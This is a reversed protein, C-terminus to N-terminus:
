DSPYVVTDTTGLERSVQVTAADIMNPQAEIILTGATSGGEGVTVLDGVLLTTRSNAELMGEAMEGPTDGMQFDIVYDAAAGRNVIYLRQNFKANTTLYPLGITTGDRKISGLTQKTSEPDFARDDNVKAYDGMATYAVTEPIRMGEEDTPDVMICIYQMTAFATVNVEDVEVTREDGEGEITLLQPDDTLVTDTGGTADTCDDDGHVFASTAFSFDGM